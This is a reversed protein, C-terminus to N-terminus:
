EDFDRKKWEEESLERAFSRIIGTLPDTVISFSDSGEGLVILSDDIEGTPYFLIAQIQGEEANPKVLKKLKLDGLRKEKVLIFDGDDLLSRSKLQDKSLKSLKEKKAEQKKEWAKFAEDNEEPPPPSPLEYREVVYFDGDKDQAFSLRFVQGKRISAYYTGQLDKVLNSGGTRTKGGFGQFGFIVTGMVVTILVIVALIEILTFARKQFARSSASKGTILMTTPAWKM